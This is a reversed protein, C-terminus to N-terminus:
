KKLGMFKGCFFLLGGLFACFSIQVWQSLSLDPWLHSDPIFKPLSSIILGIAMCFFLQKHKKLLFRILYLAGLLGLLGGFVFCALKLWEREALSILIPHYTGIILLVFSGSLGPLASAFVSLFGSGVFLLGTTAVQSQPEVPKIIHLVMFFLVTFFAIQGLFLYPFCSPNKKLSFTMKFLSPLSATILGMFFAYLQHPFLKLLFSLPQATTFLATGAGISLCSLFWFNELSHLDMSPTTPEPQHAKSGTKKQHHCFFSKIYSILQTLSMFIKEYVGMILALTGASLGPILLAVGLVSGKLVWIAKQKTM